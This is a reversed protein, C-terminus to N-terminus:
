DIIGYIAVHPSGLDDNRGVFAYGGPCVRMVDYVPFPHTMISISQESINMIRARGEVELYNDNVFEHDQDVM